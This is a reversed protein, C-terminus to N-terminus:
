FRGALWSELWLDSWDVLLGILEILFFKLWGILVCRGFWGGGMLWVFRGFRDDM